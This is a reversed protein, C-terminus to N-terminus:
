QTRRQHLADSLRSLELSRETMTNYAAEMAVKREEIRAAWSDELRKFLVFIIVAEVGSLVAFPGQTLLFSGAQSLFADM